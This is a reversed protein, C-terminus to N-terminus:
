RRLNIVRELEELDTIGELVKLIGDQKMNLFGQGLSAESIEHETARNKILFEIDQTMQIIEFIGIRGSYGSLNEPTPVKEYIRGKWLHEYLSPDPITKLISEILDKEEPTADRERKSSNLRRVLRQAMTFNIASGLVDPNAGLDLLRPFTGAATNTHLTSFVLHGTLAAHIATRTTEEERIEGVMLIDPDQRLASTLGTLFTYGKEREVQTQTIGPLHYEIPDEITIIKLGPEYVKKLFAYLTTTKGSGTPGTNLIMGNPKKLEEKVFSLLSPRMGLSELTVSIANPNLVRMVFSEGYAGPLASSRIEIDFDKVTITFRGDQAEEEINIKMGSLLKLRSRLLNYTDRDISTIPILIGDLRFRIFVVSEEPEIHVDSSNLALAGALIIEVIQTIRRGRDLSVTKDILESVQEPTSVSQAFEEIEENSLDLLGAKTKTAYSLDAYLRWAKNLSAQSTIYLEVDYGQNSLEEILNQTQERMPSRAALRLHRGVLDFGAVELSKANEEPILRLANADIPVSSLDVYLVGHKQALIQALKEEEQKRLGDLKENQSTEDFHVM